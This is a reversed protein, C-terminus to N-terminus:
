PQYTISASTFELFKAQIELQLGKGSPAQPSQTMEGWVRLKNHRVECPCCPLVDLGLHFSVLPVTKKTYDSGSGTSTDRQQAGPQDSLGGLHPLGQNLRGNWSSLYM